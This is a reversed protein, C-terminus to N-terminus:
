NGADVHYGVVMQLELKLFESTRKQGGFAGPAGYNHSIRSLYGVLLFEALIVEVEGPLRSLPGRQLEPNRQSSVEM